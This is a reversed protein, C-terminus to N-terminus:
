KPEKFVIKLKLQQDVMVKEERIIQYYDQEFIENARENKNKMLVKTVVDVLEKFSQYLAKRSSNIVLAKGTQENNFFYNVTDAVEELTKKRKGIYIENISDLYIELTTKTEWDTYAQKAISQNSLNSTYYFTLLSMIKLFQQEFDEASLNEIIRTAIQGPTRVGDHSHTVNNLSFLHHIKIQDLEHQNLAKYYCTVLRNRDIKELLSFSTDMEFTNDNNESITLFVQYYSEGTKDELLGKRVFYDELEWFERRLSDRLDEEFNEECFIEIEYSSLDAHQGPCNYFFCLTTIFLISISKFLFNM